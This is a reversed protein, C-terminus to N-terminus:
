PSSPRRVPLLRAGAPPRARFFRPPALKPITGFYSNCSPETPCAIETAQTEAARQIGRINSCCLHCQGIPLRGCTPLGGWVLVGNKMPKRPSFARPFLRCVGGAKM